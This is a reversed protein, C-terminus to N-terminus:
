HVAHQAICRLLYQRALKSPVKALRWYLACRLREIGRTPYKLRMRMTLKSGAGDPEADLVWVVKAEDAHADAEPRFRAATPLNLPANPKWIPGIFGFVLENQHSEMSADDLRGLDALRTGKSETPLARALKLAHRVGFTDRAFDYDHLAHKVAEHDLDCSYSLADEADYSPMYRDLIDNRM